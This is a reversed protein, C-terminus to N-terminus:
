TLLRSRAKADSIVEVLVDGDEVQVEYTPAPEFAPMTSPTAPASTSAPATARASSSAATWSARVWRAAEHTCVDEVAYFEGDLNVM